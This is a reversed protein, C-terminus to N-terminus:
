EREQRIILTNLFGNDNYNGRIFSLNVMRHVTNGDMIRAFIQGNLDYVDARMGEPLDVQRIINEPLFLQREPDEPPNYLLRVLDISSM